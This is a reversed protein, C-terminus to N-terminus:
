FKVISIKGKVFNEFKNKDEDSTLGSKPIVLTEAGKFQLHYSEETQRLKEIRSWRYSKSSKSTMIVLKDELLEVITQTPVLGEEGANNKRQIMKERIIYYWIGIVLLLYTSVILKGKKHRCKKRGYKTLFVRWHSPM